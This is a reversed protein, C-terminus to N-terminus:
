GATALRLERMETEVNPYHQSKGWVCRELWDQVKNDKFYEILVAVALLLVVLVLGILPPGFLLVGATALGLGASTVYAIGAGTNGEAFNAKAQRWDWWAMILAGGIGATKGFITLLSGGLAIWGQGFRPIVTGLEGMAKGILEAITGGLAGLGARLRWAAEDKEHAMAKGDDETLKQYAAYQLLAAVAGFVFPVSGKVVGVAPNRVKARWSSLNLAEVQEPTRISSALWQARGQPTLNRPMAAAQEPDVMLLFQKKETGELKM